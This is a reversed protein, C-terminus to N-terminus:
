LGLFQRIRSVGQLDGEQTEGLHGNVWDQSFGGGFDIVRADGHADVLINEPKVDGWVVGLSHLVHVSEEIQHMWRQRARRTQDCSADRLTSAQHVYETLFGVISDGDEWEVLALLTPIRLKSPQCSETIRLYIDLERNFPGIDVAAKFFVTEDSSKRQVARPFACFEFDFPDAESTTYLESAKIRSLYRLRTDSVTLDSMQVKPSLYNTDAEDGACPNAQLSGYFASLELLITPPAFYEQLTLSKAESTTSTNQRLHPICPEVAWDEFADALDIDEDMHDRFDIFQKAHLGQLNSLDIQVFFRIGRCMIALSAHSDQFGMDIVTYLPVEQDM